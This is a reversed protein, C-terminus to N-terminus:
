SDSLFFVLQLAQLIQRYIKYLIAKYMPEIDYYEFSELVLKIKKWFYAVFWKFPNKQVTLNLFPFTSYVM